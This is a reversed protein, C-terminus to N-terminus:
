IEDVDLSEDSSFGEVEETEFFADESIESNDILEEVTDTSIAAEQRRKKLLEFGGPMEGDEKLCHIKTDDTGDLANNLGCGTFSKEILERPLDNWASVIWQLYIDMPPSRMNGSATYSKEAHMMWDEYQNRIKAKFPSNWYVDGAQLFKTTGGPIVATDVRLQKLVSKTDSSIHCRFADWVLLRHGFLTTGIISNLFHKTIEDNFFTRGSWSLELEKGFRKQIAPIPRKNPLLVFPRCKFGDSRACLMVTVHLKDHGTSTVSVQKAGREEVTLSKSFDLYVATEDCAYVFSYKKESMRKEIYLIFNIVKELFEAPVKQCVTTPRRSVLNNRKLFRELWGNSAKFDSCERARQQIMRRTVRLKKARKERVWASLNEDFDADKVHRGAGNLRRRKAGDKEVASELEAQQEKWNQICQRSVSFREAAKVNNTKIAFQVAEKKFDLTFNLRRKRFLSDKPIEVASTDTM